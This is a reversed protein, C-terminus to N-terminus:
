SNDKRTETEYMWGYNVVFAYAAAKCNKRTRRCQIFTAVGSVILAMSVLYSTTPVTLELPGSLVLTPTIIGVFIALLHQLAAIASQGASPRDELGYIVDVKYQNSAQSETATRTSNAVQEGGM